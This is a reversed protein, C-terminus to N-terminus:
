THHRQLRFGFVCGKQATQKMNLDEQMAQTQGKYTLLNVAGTCRNVHTNFLCGLYAEPWVAMARKGYPAFLEDGSCINALTVLYVRQGHQEFQCNNPPELYIGQTNIFKAPSCKDSISGDIVLDSSPTNFQFANPYKDAEERSVLVGTYEYLPLRAPMASVAFLGYGARDLSSVSVRTLADAFTHHCSSPTRSSAALFAEDRTPFYFM